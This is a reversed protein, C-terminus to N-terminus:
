QFLDKKFEPNVEISKVNMTVSQMGSTEVTHPFMVGDVEKYDSFKQVQTVEGQPTTIKRRSKLKLGTEKDFFDFHKNGNAHTVKVKYAEEGDIEDIGVLETKVGLEDYRLFKHMKAEYKLRKLQPGQLEQEQGMMMMKGKEGDFVQKQMINGNMEMEMRYKDPKAQYIRSIIEQGRMNMTYVQKLSKISELNKRGGLAKIYKDMVKQATMDGVDTKTAKVPNGYKDFVEIKQDSDFQKLKDEVKKQNGVVLVIADDPKIYKDATKQVDEATVAEVEKLYNQYYDSPLDYRM